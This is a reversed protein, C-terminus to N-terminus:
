TKQALAWVVVPFSPENELSHQGEEYVTWGRGEACGNFDAIACQRNGWQTAKIDAIKFGCEELLYTLGSATWRTYDDADHIQILFPVTVLFWGKDALMSYINRVGRYPYRVHELVQEIIIMDFKPDTIIHQNLDFAPYHVANYTKWPCRSSWFTGSIELASMTETPLKSVEALTADNMVKRCWHVMPVQKRDAACRGAQDVGECTPPSPRSDLDRAAPEVPAPRRLM